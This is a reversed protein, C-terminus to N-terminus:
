PRASFAPSAHRSTALSHNIWEHGVAYVDHQTGFPLTDLDGKARQYVVSRDNRSFPRGDHNSEVFYQNIEPRIRELLYRGHGILPFNRRVAQRSQLMDAMGRAILPVIVFLSWLAHPWVRALLGVCALTMASFTLFALRM